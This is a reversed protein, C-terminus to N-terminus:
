MSRSASLPSSRLHPAVEVEKAIVWPMMAVKSSHLESPVDSTHAEIEQEEEAILRIGANNYAACGPVVCPWPEM